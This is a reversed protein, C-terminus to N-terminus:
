IESHRRGAVLRQVLDKIEDESAGAIRAENIRAIELSSWAVARAGIKVPPPLLLLKVKLWVTSRALGTASTVDWIRILKTTSPESM